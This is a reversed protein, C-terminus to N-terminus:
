HREPPQHLESWMQILTLPMYILGLNHWQDAKLKGDGDGGGVTLPISALWSPKTTNRLDDWLHEMEQRTVAFRANFVKVVPEASANARKEHVAWAFIKLALMHRSFSKYAGESGPISTHKAELKDDIEQHRKSIDEDLCDLGKAVYYLALKYKSQLKNEIIERTAVDTLMKLPTKELLSIIEHVSKMDNSGTLKPNEHVNAINISIDPKSEATKQVCFGLICRFHTKLLGLFLNHMVDVVIM